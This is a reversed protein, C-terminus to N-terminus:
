PTLDMGGDSKQFDRGGSKDSSAFDQQDRPDAATSRIRDKKKRPASLLLWASLLTKPIVISWYPFVWFQVKWNAWSRHRGMGFHFGAFDVRWDVIFETWCDPKQPAPYKFPHATRGLLITHTPQVPRTRFKILQGLSLPNVAYEPPLPFRRIISLDGGSSVIYGHFLRAPILGDIRDHRTTSRLWASMFTCSLLLTFIGTLKRWDFFFTGMAQGLRV